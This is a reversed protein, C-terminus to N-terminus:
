PPAFAAKTAVLTNKRAYSCSDMLHNYLLPTCCCGPVTVCERILEKSIELREALRLIAELYDTRGEM